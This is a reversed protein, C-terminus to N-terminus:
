MKEKIGRRILWWNVPYTTLFGAIMAIQMMFWYTWDTPKLDPYLTARVMMWSFMGVQYAVLSLTDIKVATMLGKVISLGRMPAVSFYQFLIGFLYALVFGILMKGLLDSGFVTISLGFALWDGIFDGLACGAGCHSAGSFTAQWMPKDKSNSDNRRHARGFWFYFILGIPGLYLMTLPWVIEMIKMRQRRACVFLDVVVWAASVVSLLLYLKAIADLTDRTM